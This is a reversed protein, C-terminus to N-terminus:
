MENLWELEVPPKNKYFYEAYIDIAREACEQSLSMTITNLIDPVADELYKMNNANVDRDAYRQCSITEKYADDEFTRQLLRNTANLSNNDSNLKQNEKTLVDIRAELDKIKLLLTKDGIPRADKRETPSQQSCGICAVLSLIILSRM